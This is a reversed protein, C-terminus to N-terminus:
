QFSLIQVIDTGNGACWLQEGYPVFMQLNTSKPVIVGNASPTVTPSGIRVDASNGHTTILLNAGAPSQTQFLKTATSGAVVSNIVISM